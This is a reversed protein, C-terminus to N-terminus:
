GESREPDVIRCGGETPLIPVSDPKDVCHLSRLLFAESKQKRAFLDGEAFGFGLASSFPGRAKKKQAIIAGICVRFIASEMARQDSIRRAPRVGSKMMGAVHALAPCAFSNSATASIMTASTAHSTARKISPTRGIGRSRITNEEASRGSAYKM